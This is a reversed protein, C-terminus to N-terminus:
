RDIFFAGTFRVLAIKIPTSSARALSAKDVWGTINGIGMRRYRISCGWLEPILGALATGCKFNCMQRPTYPRHIYLM